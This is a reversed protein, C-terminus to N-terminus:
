SRAINEVVRNFGAKSLMTALRDATRSSTPQEDADGAEESDGSAKSSDESGNCSAYM